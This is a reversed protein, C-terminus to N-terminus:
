VYLRNRKSYHFFAEMMSNTYRIGYRELYASMATEKMSPRELTPITLSTVRLQPFPLEILLYNTEILERNEDYVKELKTDDNLYKIATKVGVRSLGQIGNHTGSLATVLIWDEPQITPYDTIFSDYTYEKNKRLLVLNKYHLLQNLDDDNSLVYIKDYQAHHTRIYHAILDDAELGKVNWVPVNAVNLFEEALRFGDVIQQKFSNESIKKRNNKYQPYLQKRLYPPSDQCVLIHKPHYQNIQKALQLTFGYLGGTCVDNFDLNSNVAASRIVTNSFDIILISNNDTM